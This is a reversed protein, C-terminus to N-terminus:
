RKAHSRAHHEIASPEPEVPGVPPSPDPLRESPRPATALVDERTLIEDEPPRDLRYGKRACYGRLSDGSLGDPITVADWKGCPHLRWVVLDQANIPRSAMDGESM